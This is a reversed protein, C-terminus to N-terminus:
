ILLGQLLHTIALGIIIAASAIHHHGLSLETSQTHTDTIVQAKGLEIALQRIGTSLHHRCWRGKSGSRTPIMPLQQQPRPRHLILYKDNTGIHDVPTM